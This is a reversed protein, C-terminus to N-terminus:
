IKIKFKRLPPPLPRSNRRDLPLLPPPQEPPTTPQKFNQNINEARTSITDTPCVAIAQTGNSTETLFNRGWSAISTCDSRSIEDFSNQSGGFNSSGLGFETRM